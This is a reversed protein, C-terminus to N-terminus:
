ALFADIRSRLAILAERVSTKKEFRDDVADPTVPGYGYGGLARGLDSALQTVNAVALPQDLPLMM